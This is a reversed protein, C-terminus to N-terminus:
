EQLSKKAIQEYSFFVKNKAACDKMNIYIQTNNVAEILTNYIEEESDNYLFKVNGDLDIHHLEEWYKVIMPIGQGATQEWLTSHGGPYIALDAAGIVKYSEEVSLWGIHKINENCFSMISGELEPIVSGFILLKIKERSMRSIAQELLVTQTKWKDIKGGTVILFDEKGINYKERVSEKVDTRSAMEVLEDDAGMVLLECKEKPLDYMDILFNVRAPLVGYFKNVYPEIRRAFFKWIIKHLVNESIWTTASNNFDAHNDVYLKTAPHKKMYSIVRTVDVFQFNHMFIIDPAEKEIYNGINEYRKFKSDVNSKGKMNIRVIKVGDSNIYETENMLVKQSGNSYKWRSTIVTVDYGIKVHYKSLLNDQYAWGDTFMYNLCLYVIKEKKM